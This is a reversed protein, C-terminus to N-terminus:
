TLPDHGSYVSCYTSGTVFNSQTYYFTTGFLMPISVVTHLPVVKLQNNQINHLKCFRGAMFQGDM